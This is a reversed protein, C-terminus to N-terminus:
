VAFAPKGYGNDVDLQQLFKEAAVADEELQKAVREALEEDQKTRVAVWPGCRLPKVLILRREMSDFDDNDRPIQFEPIQTVVKEPDDDHSHWLYKSIRSASCESTKKEWYYGFNGNGPSPAQKYPHFKAFTSADPIPKREFGELAAPKYGTRPHSLSFHVIPHIYEHTTGVDFYQGPKRNEGMIPLTFRKVGTFADNISGVGWGRYPINQNDVVNQTTSLQSLIREQKKVLDNMFIPDFALQTSKEVLDVMWAFVINAMTEMDGEPHLPKKEKAPTFNPANASPKESGIGSSGPKFGQQQYEKQHNAKWRADKEEETLEDELSYDSGGGVNIHVGPFWCQILTTSKNEKPLTWLTPSFPARREDIALAQFAHKINPHVNVDHFAHMKNAASHDHITTSPWGLSGVQPHTNTAPFSLNLSFSKCYRLRGCSSYGGSVQM